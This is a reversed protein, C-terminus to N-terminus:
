TVIRWQLEVWLRGWNESMRCIVVTVIKNSCVCCYECSPLYWRIRKVEPDINFTISAEEVNASEAAAESPNAM